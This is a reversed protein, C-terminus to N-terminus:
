KSLMKEVIARWQPIKELLMSWYVDGIEIPDSEGWEVWLRIYSVNKIDREIKELFAIIITGFFVSWDVDKEQYDNNFCYQIVAILKNWPDEIRIRWPAVYPRTLDIDKMYRSILVFEKLVGRWHAKLIKLFILNRNAWRMESGWKQLNEWIKKCCAFLDVMYEPLDEVSKIIDWEFNFTVYFAQGM